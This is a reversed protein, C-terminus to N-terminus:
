VIRGKHSNQACSLHIYLAGSRDSLYVSNNGYQPALKLSVQRSEKEKERQKSAICRIKHPKKFNLQM